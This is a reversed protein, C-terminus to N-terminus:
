ERVGFRADAVGERVVHVRQEYPPASTCAALLLAALAFFNLAALPTRRRAGRVRRM